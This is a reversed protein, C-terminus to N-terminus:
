IFFNALNTIKIERLPVLYGIGNNLKLIADILILEYDITSSCSVM